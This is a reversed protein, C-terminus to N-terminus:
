QTCARRYKNCVWLLSQNVMSAAARAWSSDVSSAAAEVRGRSGVASRSAVTGRTAAGSDTGFATAWFPGGPAAAAGAEAPVAQRRRQLVGFTRLREAFRPTPAQVSPEKACYPM